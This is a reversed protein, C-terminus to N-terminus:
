VDGGVGQEGGQVEGDEDFWQDACWVDCVSPNVKSRIMRDKFKLAEELRGGKCLGDIVNNYAVVNPSVGIGEMKCFLDVADGVRGGKCFVNIMTTFTFVDLM